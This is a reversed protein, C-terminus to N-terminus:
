MNIQKNSRERKNKREPIHKMLHSNDIKTTKDKTKTYYRVYRLCEFIQPFYIFHPM